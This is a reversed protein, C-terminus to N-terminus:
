KNETEKNENEEVCKEISSEMEKLLSSNESIIQQCTSVLQGFYDKLIKMTDPDIGDIESVTESANKVKDKSNKANKSEKATNREFQNILSVLKVAVVQKELIKKEYDINEMAKKADGPKANKGFYKEYKKDILNNNKADECAKQFADYMEDFKNYSMLDLNANKCIVKVEENAIDTKRELLEYRRKINKFKFNYDKIKDIYEQIKAIIMKAVKIILDGLKTVFNETETILRERDSECLYGVIERELCLANTNLRYDIELNECERYYDDINFQQENIENNIYAVSSM